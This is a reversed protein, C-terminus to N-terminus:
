VVFNVEYLKVEKEEKPKEFEVELGDYSDGGYESEESESCPIVDSDYDM